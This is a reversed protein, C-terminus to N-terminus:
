VPIRSKAQRYDRLAAVARLYMRQCSASHDLAFKQLKVGDNDTVVKTELNIWYQQRSWCILIDEILLREVPSAGESALRVRMDCVFMRVCEWRFLDDECYLSLWEALSRAGLNGLTTYKSPEASIMSRLREVVHHGGDRATAILEDLSMEDVPVSSAAPESRETEQDPEQSSPEAAKALPSRWNRSSPILVEGLEFGPHPNAVPKVGKKENSKAMRRSPTKGAKKKGTPEKTMDLETAMLRRWGRWRPNHFGLSRMESVLVASVSDHFSKALSEAEETGARIEELKRRCDIRQQKRFLVLASEIHAQLDKGLYRSVKRGDPLRVTSYYYMRQKRREWAM